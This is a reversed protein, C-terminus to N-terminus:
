LVPLAPPDEAPPPVPPVMRPPKRAEHDICSADFQRSVDACAVRLKRLELASYVIVSRQGFAGNAAESPLGGTSHSDFAREPAVASDSAQEPVLVQSDSRRAAAPISQQALQQVPAEQMGHAHGNSAALQQRQQQQQRRRQEQQEQRETSMQRAQPQEMLNEHQQAAASVRWAAWGAVQSGRLAGEREAHAQVAPGGPTGTAAAPLTQTDLAAADGVSNPPLRLSGAPPLQDDQSVAAAASAAAAGGRSSALEAAVDSM